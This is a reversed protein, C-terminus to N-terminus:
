AFLKIRVSPDDSQGYHEARDPDTLRSGDPLAIGWRLRKQDARRGAVDIDLEWIPDSWVSCRSVPRASNDTESVVSSPSAVVASM